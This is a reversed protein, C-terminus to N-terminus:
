PAACLDAFDTGLGVSTILACSDAFQNRVAAQVSESLRTELCSVVDPMGSADDDCPSGIDAPAVGDCKALISHSLKGNAKTLKSVPESADLSALCKEISKTLDDGKSTAKLVGDFCKAFLKQLIKAHKASAIAVGKQCALEAEDFVPPELAVTEVTLFPMLAGGVGPPGSGGNGLNDLSTASLNDNTTFVIGIHTASGDLLGGLAATLDVDFALPGSLALTADTITGLSTTSVVSLPAGVVNNFDPLDVVGNGSYSFLVITSAATGDFTTGPGFTTLVDDINFTLTASVIDGSGLGALEDLPFEVIGREETVGTQLAIGLANGTFDPTGDQAMGPPPFPFGDLIGDYVTGGDSEDITIIDAAAPAAALAAAVAIQITRTLWNKRTM